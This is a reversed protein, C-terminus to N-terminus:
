EREERAEKNILNNGQVEEAYYSSRVLPGAKVWDFGLLRAEHEYEAFVGPHIYEVVPLNDLSPRLYQGLSVRHVDASRLDRLVGLVEERTEGLGLMLASKAEVGPQSAAKELLDLSREYQSGKRATKYLRPVTEVNHGWVLHPTLRSAHPIIPHSKVADMIISVAEDQVNRFDPTLFEVGIDPKRMRLQRLSEAFVWTGGDELDDRNVSTLVIYNLNLHMVAEAIRLPENVDHWNPKGTKVSCFGCARTCTDGLLMFTATGRSWCEGRNPCRAEECVTHLRNGHVALHTDGYGTEHGLNQRIWAPMRTRNPAREAVPHIPIATTM